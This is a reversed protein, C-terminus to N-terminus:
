EEGPDEQHRGVGGEGEGRVQVRVYACLSTSLEAHCQQKKLGRVRLASESKSAWTPWHRTWSPSRNTRRTPRCRSPCHWRCPSTGSWSWGCLRAMHGPPIRAQQGTREKTTPRSPIPRGRRWCAKQRTRQWSSERILIEVFSTIYGEAKSAKDGHSISRIQVKKDGAPTASVPRDATREPSIFWLEAEEWSLPRQFTHTHTHGICASRHEAGGASTLLQHSHTNHAVWINPKNPRRPPSPRITTNTSGPPQLWLM